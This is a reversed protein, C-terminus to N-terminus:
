LDNLVRQLDDDRGEVETSAQLVLSPHVLIPTAGGSRRKRLQTPDNTVRPHQPPEKTRRRGFTKNDKQILQECAQERDVLPHSAKLARARGSAFEEGDLTELAPRHKEVVRELVRSGGRM